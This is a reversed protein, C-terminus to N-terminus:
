GSFGYGMEETIISRTRGNDNYDRTWAKVVAARAREDRDLVEVMRERLVGPETKVNDHIVVHVTPINPDPAGGRRAERYTHAEREAQERTYRTRNDEYGAGAVAAGGAAGTGAGSGGQMGASKALGSALKGTVGAGAFFAASAAAHLAAGRFDGFALSGIAYAAHRIGQVTFEASLNALQVALAEKLAQGLSKGYLLNAAIGQKLAGEMAGLSGVATESLGKISDGISGTADQSNAKFKGWLDKFPQFPNEDEEGKKKGQRIEELSQQHRREEDEIQQHYLTVAQVREQETQAKKLNIELQRDIARGEEDHRADEIEKEKAALERLTGLRESRSRYRDSSAASQISQRDLELGEARAQALLARLAELREREAEVEDKKAKAVRRATEEVLAAYEVEAAGIEGQIRKYEASGERDLELRQWLRATQKKLLDAQIDGIEQAAESERKVGIDVAGEISEIRAKAEATRVKLIADKHAEAAKLREDESKDEAANRRRQYEDEAATRKQQIDRLKRERDEEGKTSRTAEKEERGYIDRKEKIWEDLLSLEQETFQALTDLRRRYDRELAESERRFDADLDKEDAQIDKLAGGGAKGKGGGKGGGGRTRDVGGGGGRGANYLRQFDSESKAGAYTNLAGAAAEDARQEVLAGMKWPNLTLAGEKLGAMAGRVRAIGVAAFIAWRQWQEMNLSLGGSMDDLGKLIEPVVIGVFTASYNRTRAGLEDWRDGLRDLNGAVETSMVLGAECAKRLTEDIDGGTDSIFVRLDKYARGLAETGLRDRDGENTVKGLALLVARLAGDTDVLAANVDEIGLEAFTKKLEKNGEAAQGLNKHMFLVANGLADASTGSQILQSDLGSITEVTLGTQLALDNYRSGLEVAKQTAATLAAGLSATIGAAAGLALGAPGLSATFTGVRGAGSAFGQAIDGVEKKVFGSFGSVDARAQSTDSKIKFLLSAESASM